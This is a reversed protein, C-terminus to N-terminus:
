MVSKTGRRRRALLGLGGAGLLGLAGPEPVVTNASAGVPAVQQGAFPAGQNAFSNNLLAFDVGDIVGDYNFDGNSWGSLGNAFGNNLLAFDVGDVLGDLNADGFYTTRVLVDNISAAVGSGGPPFTAYIASGAGNDNIMSGIATLLKPDSAATSSDIGPGSWKFTGSGSDFAAGSKISAAVATLDTVAHPKTDEHLVMAGDALDLSGASDISLSGRVTPTVGDYRGLVLAPRRAPHAPLPLVSFTGGPGLALADVFLTDGVGSAISGTAGILSLSSLHEASKLQVNAASHATISLTRSTSSGADTDLILSAGAVDISASAAAQVSGSLEMTGGGSVATTNSFVFTGATTVTSGNAINFSGSNSSGGGSLALKGGQVNVTGSNNLAIGITTTGTGSRNFTGSNNFADTGGFVSMGATASATFVVGAVNNITGDTFDIDSSGSWTAPAHNELVRDLFVRLGTTDISLSGAAAVVTKGTGSMTGGSWTLPGNVTVDGSGSLTGGSVTLGANITSAQAISLTGGSLFLNENSMLSQITDTNTSHTITRVIAGGVDITVDDSPGPPGPNWNAATSWNGDANPVWNVPVGLAPLPTLAM